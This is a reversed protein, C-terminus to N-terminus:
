IVSDESPVLFLTHKWTGSQFLHSCLLLLNLGLSEPLYPFCWSLDVQRKRVPFLICRGESVISKIGRSSFELQIQGRPIQKFSSYCLSCCRGGCFWRFVTFSSLGKPSGTSFSFTYSLITHCHLCKKHFASVVHVLWAVKLHGLAPNHLSMKAFCKWSNKRVAM